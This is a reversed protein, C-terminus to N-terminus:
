DIIVYDWFEVIDSKSISDCYQLEEISSFYSILSRLEVIEQATEIPLLLGESIEEATAYNIHVYSYEQVEAATTTTTKKTTTTKSTSKKTTTTKKTTTAKTTTTKTTTTKTTTASTQTTYASYYESSVYLYSKLKEVTKDGIGSIESLQEISSIKGKQSRFTLIKQATADGVGDIQILQDYTATNIDIPFSVQQVVSEAQTEATTAETALEADTSNQVIETQVAQTQIAQTQIAQTNTSETDADDSEDENQSDSSEDLAEGSLYSDDDISYTSDTIEALTDDTDIQDQSSVTSTEEFPSYSDSRSYNLEADQSSTSQLKGVVAICILFIASYIVFRHKKLLKAIAEKTIETDNIKM